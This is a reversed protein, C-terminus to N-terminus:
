KRKRHKPATIEKRERILKDGGGIIKIVSPEELHSEILIRNYASVGIGVAEARLKLASYTKESMKSHLSHTMEEMM